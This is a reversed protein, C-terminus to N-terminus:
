ETLKKMEMEEIENRSARENNNSTMKGQKVAENDLSKIV